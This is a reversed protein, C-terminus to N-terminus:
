FQMTTLLLLNELYIQKGSQPLAVLLPGVGKRQLRHFGRRCHVLFIQLM